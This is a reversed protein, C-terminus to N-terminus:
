HEIVYKKTIQLLIRSLEKSFRPDVQVLPLILDWSSFCGFCNSNIWGSVSFFFYRYGPEVSSCTPDPEYLITNGSCFLVKNNFTKFLTYKNVCLNFFLEYLCPTGCTGPCKFFIYIKNYRLTAQPSTLTDSIKYSSFFYNM